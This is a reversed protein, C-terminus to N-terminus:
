IKYILNTFKEIDKKGKNSIEDDSIVDANEIKYFGYFDEVGIKSSDAILYARNSNDLIKAQLIGEDVSYTYALGDAIGNVGIFAMSFKLKEIVDIALSGVFAGTIERFEGGILFVRVARLNKLKEFLYLSNTYINCKKNSLYTSVYEITTGAGLFINEDGDILSAIIQAIYEKKEKNKYIKEENSFERPLAKDLSKAGGHVRLLLNQDELEKLDRRITMDTVNLINTLTSVQIIGDKELKDLIIEHREEKLMAIEKLLFLTM